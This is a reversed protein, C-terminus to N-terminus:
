ESSELEPTTKRQNEFGTGAPNSNMFGAGAM